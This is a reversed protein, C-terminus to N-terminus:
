ARQMERILRDCRARGEKGVLERAAQLVATLAHRNDDLQGYRQLTDVLLPVFQASPVDCQILSKAQPPLNASALLSRQVNHDEIGPLSLLFEVIESRRDHRVELGDLLEAVQYKKRLKGITITSEGMRELGILEQYDVTIEPHDPLPVLETVDLKEFSAHIDQYTKRLIAFYERQREGQVWISIIREEHDAKVVATAEFDAYHLVVGTRWRLEDQIDRHMRVIFRPLVSRPLFDYQLRFKLAAVYDFDFAPEPVDLLDPILVRDRDLEYCLEFKKM